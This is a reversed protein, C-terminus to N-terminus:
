TDKNLFNIVLKDFKEKDEFIYHGANLFVLKSKKIDVLQKVLDPRVLRDKKWWYNFYSM